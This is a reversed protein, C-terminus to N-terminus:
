IILKAEKLNDNTESDIQKVTLIYDSIRKVTQKEFLEKLSMEVLFTKNLRNILAMAKLSNGGIKFFDEDISLSSAEIKLLESWINVIQEEIENTPPVYQKTFITSPSPLLKKALKGNASLPFSNVKIFFSPIMYDPLQKKLYSQIEEISLESSDNIYYAVLAVESNVSRCDVVVSKITPHNSLVHEIEGLEIRYGRLKIQHDNRGIFEINGDPLWKALDGTRYLKYSDDENFPNKIFKEASLEPRNIYGEAVQVGGILLEGIVNEPVIDNQDNVIYLQTNSVPTGIINKNGKYDTLDVATVDITAETPGYLNYIKSNSFKKQFKKLTSNTLSEGSCIVNLKFTQLEVDDFENLFTDLMSPVFHMLTIGEEKIINKLYALDTHRNPKALVMTSNTILPTILEWVSVDFTFPTKQLIVDDSVNFYNQKWMLRNLLSEHRILVGKPKGTSGSTYIVYAIDEPVISVQINKSPYEVVKSSTIDIVSLEDSIIQKLKDEILNSTSLLLKAKCEKLIFDIREKPHESDIPVYAGGAKMIALIGIIMEFSREICIPILDGKKVGEDQLLSALQNSRKELVKNTMQDKGFILKIAEPNSEFQNKFLDLVTNGLSYKEKTANNNVLLHHKENKTMYNIDSIQNSSLLSRLTEEFHRLIMEISSLSILQNNYKLNVTIGSDDVCIYLSLAYNNEEKGQFNRISLTQGKSSTNVVEQSYNDFIILSDFLEDQILSNNQIDTISLHGHEERSIIHEKQLNILWDSISQKETITTCVPITNIYLGIGSEIGKTIENRGSIITGFAVTNNGSYKSLLYAWAGQIVTNITIQHKKAFQKLEQTFDDKMFHKVNNNSFVKNRKKNDILFPLFSPTTLSSLYNKWYEHGNFENRLFFQKINNIYNDERNSISVDKNNVLEQYIGVVKTLLISVSWGDLLIHHHTFVIKYEGKSMKLINIRFPSTKLDFPKIYDEKLFAEIEINDKNSYDLVRLPLKRKKSVCQVPINFFENNFSTRLISHKEILIEWSRQFLEINLSPMDFSMQVIYNSNDDYLSHFLLGQQLPTLKYIDIIDNNGQLSLFKTLEKHNTELHLGYDFPTKISNDVTLCHNIILKLNDEFSQALKLVTQESFINSNYNWNFQMRGEVVLGSISLKHNNQNKLDINQGMSESAMSFFGNTQDETEFQGLYNFIIQQFNKSLQSRIDDDDNLYRLIGYGIGKNPVQRLREKVEIITRDLSDESYTLTLPFLSTFWGITRSVDINDFIDERGHGELGITFENSNLWPGLTMALSSMLLDNIETNYKQHCETLLVETEKATLKTQYFKVDKYTSKYENTSFDYPLKVAKSLQKKWYTFEKLLYKSNGYSYLKQQWQRYSTSKRSTVTVKGKIADHIYGSLDDLLIHWSVIDVIMHHAVIFLRNHSETDSTKILVFCITNETLSLSKQYKSCVKTINESREEINKLNEIYLKPEELSYVGQYIDGEKRYKARLIDHQFVLKSIAKDIINDDLEKSIKMLVSQNYHNVNNFSSEAFDHQIPLLEFEGELVGVESLVTNNKRLNQSLEQITQNKFIDGVRLHIDQKKAQSVVQIATISNGGLSFFNDNIGVKENKLLEQWIKVLRIETQTRPAVYENFSLDSTKAEPLSKRDLKGNATLPFSDLEIFVEPIMYVPVVNSLEDRVIKKDFGEKVVAYAVLQNNDKSVIVVSQKITKVQNLHYEIEGLEIRNGRIKVQSDNRGLFELNGDPMWRALDGTKYLKHRTNKNFPNDIFKESTLEPKNLYGRAVQIGEIILEGIVGIPQHINNKDVIHIKTNAIPKGIPVIANNHETVDVATVDIAAETPGYLNFIRTNEFKEQFKALTAYSLAEGSCIVKSFSNNINLDTESVFVDLMSPVFHVISVQEDNILKQLYLPDKHGEPKAFVLRSGSILPLLLEWVSVDFCFTTKQLIVDHETVELYDRMWMLRNYIGDHQNMVGKPKGTTGSTYIVYALSTEPISINANLVQEENYLFENDLNILEVDKFLKQYKSITLVLNPQTDDLIYDIRNQPYTPDIPVYAGGAKLIGIIGIIMELSRDLCLPILTDVTVGKKILIQALQNSITDLELYSLQKEKYKVAIKEPNSEVQKTFLDLITKDTEYDALTENFEDLRIRDEKDAESLIIEKGMLTTESYLFQELTLKFYTALKKVQEKSFVATSYRLLVRFSKNYVGGHEQRLDHAEIHFGFPFHENLYFESLSDEELEISSDYAEWEKFIQFDLYNFAVDFIPNHEGAPEKIVELIKHFPMKEHYKLTRLKDEIYNIYGGWTLEESIKARFPITNLFCGLLKDGDQTLPRNNTVIGLTIDDEYSLMNMTYLCAAFCLHKFSTNYRIALEELEERFSIPLEFVDSVFVHKEDNSPLEFRTYGDLEKQWYTISEQSKAASLEGIIQDKYTTELLVPIYNRDKVLISYMNLMETLFSSLSWGDFLSHHFDFLLYQYDDRVKIINIRWMLSFSLETGRRKEELLKNKVFVRQEEKDLHQIDIFNVEPDANKLIIHAFSELDYIKRLATHKDIMLGVAHKFLDFDFNKVPYDYMNQEHYIIEHIDDSTNKLYEFVMGKEVGNM